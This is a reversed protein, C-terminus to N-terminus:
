AHLDIVHDAQPSLESGFTTSVNINLRSKTSSIQTKISNNPIHAYTQFTIQYKDSVLSIEFTTIVM